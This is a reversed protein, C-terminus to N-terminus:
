NTRSEIILNGQKDRKPPLDNKTVEFNTNYNTQVTIRIKNDNVVLPRLKRFKTYDENFEMENCGYEDIYIKITDILEQKDTRDKDILYWINLNLNKIKNFINRQYRNLKLM